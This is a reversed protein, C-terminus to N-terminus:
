GGQSYPAGPPRQSVKSLFRISGPKNEDTKVEHTRWIHGSRGPRTAM